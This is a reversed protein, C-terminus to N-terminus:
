KQKREGGGSARAHQVIIARGNIAFENMREIVREVDEARDLSVFGYGRSRNTDDRLIRASEVTIGRGEFAERLTDETVKWELNGVFVQKALNGGKPM